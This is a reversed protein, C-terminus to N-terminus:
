ENSSLHSLGPNAMDASTEGDHNAQFSSTKNPKRAHSKHYSTKKTKLKIDTQGVLSVKKFKPKDKARAKTKIFAFKQNDFDPPDSRTENRKNIVKEKIEQNKERIQDYLKNSTEKHQQVYTSIIANDNLDFPNVAKIHGSVVEFPTYKTVSHVSNNYGLVGRKMLQETSLGNNEDKLCRYAEIISSHFREVPSNSNSNKATTYHLEIKYLKCFDELDKNKFETGQDATIKLPLGHHTIFTLLNEVVETGTISKLPYAQGYRSFSDIITVFADYNMRFTDVHIHEFPRSATPTLNFKVVPPDRDYKNRQCNECNNVYNEVDEILKPWYFRKLLATRMENIGRHCTKTTHYLTLKERQDNESEIDELFTSCQVFKYSSNKFYKQVTITFLRAIEASKFHIAYLTRPNLYEKLIKIVHQEYNRISITIYFRMNNFVNTQKIKPVEIDGNTMIVQNKYQNIPRETLPIGFLPNEAASHVTELDSPPISEVRPPKIQVNSIINVRPDQHNSTELMIEDIDLNPLNDLGPIIFNDIVNDIDGPNNCISETELANLDVPNRSLADAAQNQKGRKYQIQYDFEELKLRWRVLRSAPEKLSFLWQLPQHDTLITFKHGFLYPRFYQCSWVIALLEKEITSYHIEAPNLTRSAYCIPHNDQSLIAGIAYMSADTTLEFPKNFDPYTLVPESSLLNKCTNFCDVFEKTHEVKCNKKLCETMPKTIKAFNKIFKRYYGLLGLFSKIDRPTKPIPYKQIAEIKKKNPKIGERTVIHGLFEVEHRLFECKDVQIKLNADRLKQFILKLNKIHEELGSSFVIIDDMFVMCIKNQVDKLVEDMVRQFTSPANKLGFPMRLYEYHGNEVNFATKGISTEEMEIQHFGSALDLTSFYQARGLKDLIDNINPIPYRDSITKENIKRYDVVIRWKQKGSADMKKPVIWIPSSWPSSSPRIINKELMENIQKRVEEKHVYPYRYSKTHVPIEDTTKIEHKIKSTFSLKTNPEYFIDSFERCLKIIATKEEKNMHDVRIQNNIFDQKPRDIESPLSSYSMEEFTFMEFSDNEFPEVVLPETLTMTVCKDTPNQIEVLAYHENAVSLSTPIILNEFNQANILVEGNRVSVPVQKLIIENANVSISFNSDLIHRYKFPIEINPGVLFMNMLDINLNMNILDVLGIVGDYFDHFDFLIFDIAYDLGFEAFAPIKAQYRTTQSGVATKIVNNTHYICHPYLSEAISPKLISKFSGTDIL